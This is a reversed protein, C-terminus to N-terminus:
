EGELLKQIQGPQYKGSLEWLTTAEEIMESRTLPGTLSNIDSYNEFPIPCSCGSDTALYYHETNISKFIALEDYSWDPESLKIVGLLKLGHTAPKYYVNNQYM